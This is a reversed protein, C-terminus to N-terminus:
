KNVAPLLDQERKGGPEDKTEAKKQRKILHNKLFIKAHNLQSKSTGESIKLMEGIERHSYGEIAFLNFVLKYGPPLTNVLKLLEQSNMSSLVDPGGDAVRFMVTDLDTNNVHKRNQHYHNIATSVTVKRMWGELQLPDHLQDIKGFIRIFSEQLVDHARHRDETYRLCIGFLRQSYREYLRYQAKREGAQCGRVIDHLDVM